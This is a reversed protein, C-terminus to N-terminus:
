TRCGSPPRTSRPPRWTRAPGPPTAPPGPTGPPPSWSWGTSTPTSSRRTSRTTLQLFARRRARHLPLRLEHQHGPGRPQRRLPGGAADQAVSAGKLPMIPSAWAVGAIGQGNNSAAAIIGAVNTGHGDPTPSTPTTAPSIGATSPARTAPDSNPTPNTWLKGALDPNDPQGRHQRRRGRRGLPERHHDGLGGPGRHRGRHGPQEPGVAPPLPHRQAHGGAAQLAGPELSDFRLAIAQRTTKAHPPAGRHSTFDHRM